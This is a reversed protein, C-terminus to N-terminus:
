FHRQSNGAGTADVATNQVPVAKACLDTCSFGNTQIIGAEHGVTEFGTPVFEIQSELQM